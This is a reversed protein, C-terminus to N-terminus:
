AQKLVSSDILKASQPKQGGIRFLGGKGGGIEQILQYLPIRASSNMHFTYLSVIAKLKGIPEGIGFAINRSEKFGSSLIEAYAMLENPWVCGAVITFHFSTVTFIHFTEIGGMAEPRKIVEFFLKGEMVATRVIKGHSRKM